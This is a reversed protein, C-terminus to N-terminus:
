MIENFEVIYHPICDIFHKMFCLFEHTRLELRKDQFNQSFGRFYKSFKFYRFIVKVYRIKDAIMGSHRKSSISSCFLRFFYYFRNFILNTQVIEHKEVINLFCCRSYNLFSLCISDASHIIRFIKAWYIQDIVEQCKKLIFCLM